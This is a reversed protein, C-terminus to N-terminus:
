CGLRRHCKIASETRLRSTMTPPRFSPALSRFQAGMGAAALRDPGNPSTRATFKASLRQSRPIASTGCSWSMQRQETIEKEM